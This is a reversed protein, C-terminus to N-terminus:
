GMYGGQDYCSWIMLLAAGPCTQLIELSLSKVVERFLKNWYKFMRTPVFFIRFGLQFKWGNTTAQKQQREKKKAMYLSLTQKGGATSAGQVKALFLSWM